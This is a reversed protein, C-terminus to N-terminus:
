CAYVGNIGDITTRLSEGIDSESPLRRLASSGGLKLNLLDPTSSSFKCKLRTGLLVQQQQDLLCM